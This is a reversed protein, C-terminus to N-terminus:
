IINQILQDNITGSHSILMDLIKGFIVPELLSLIIETIYTILYIAIGIKHKSLQKKILQNM